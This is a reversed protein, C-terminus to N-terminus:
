LALFDMPLWWTCSHVWVMWTLNCYGSAASGMKQDWLPVSSTGVHEGRAAGLAAGNTRSGQTPGMM